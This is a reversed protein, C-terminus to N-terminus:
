NEYTGIIRSCRHILFYRGTATDWVNESIQAIMNGPLDSNLGSILVCQLLTGSKLEFVSRSSNVTYKSYEEPLDQKTFADKREWGSPDPRNNQQPMFSMSMDAASAPNAPANFCCDQFKPSLTPIIIAMKLIVATIHRIRSLRFILLLM